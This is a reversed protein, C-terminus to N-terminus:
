LVPPAGQGPPAVEVMAQIQELCQTLSHHLLRLNLVTAGLERYRGVVERVREPEGAPDFAPEPHLVVEIPSTRSEWAPSERAEALMPTLDAEGLGFPAWGDGLELARRLSRATRGGIWIPVREQVACPDVVFGEYSFHPGHYAPERRSLSSRLARIADDAREGRGAMDVGLLEFEETLTGVGVGLVLRGTSVVDLTGYRKAIALPHHYGLVLVHTALRVRTTRAALYGFTALPDWYRGGRRAVAETPVAVHESCTLHHYGLRDAAEAIASVAELGASEEWSNHIRPNLTVVPTVLGFRM